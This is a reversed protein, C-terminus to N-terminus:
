TTYEVYDSIASPQINLDESIRETTWKKKVLTRIRRAIWLENGIDDAVMTRSPRGQGGRIRRWVTRHRRVITSMERRGVGPVKAAMEGWGLDGKCDDYAALCADIQGPPYKKYVSGRAPGPKKRAKGPTRKKYPGRKGRKVPTPKREAPATSVPPPASDVEVSKYVVVDRGSISVTYCKDPDYIVGNPLQILM